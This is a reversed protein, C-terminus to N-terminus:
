EIPLAASMPMRSWGDWILITGTQENWGVSCGLLSVISKLPVLPYGAALKPATALSTMTGNMLAETSGISLFLRTEGRSIILYQGLGENEVQGKLAAILPEVPVLWEEGLPIPNLAFHVPNGNVTVKLQSGIISVPLGATKALATQIAEMDTIEALGHDGLWQRVDEPKVVRVEYPDPYYAMVITGAHADYGLAVREYSITVSTGKKVRDFLDRAQEPYMRICGHSAVRGISAPANTAHIGYGKISLGMWRDGLPNDPGPPVPEEETAWEPPFWTPNKAKVALTFEGTPTEWGPRGIAVPYYRVPKGPRFLYLGREPLNIVIGNEVTLPVIRQTPILLKEDGENLDGENANYIASVGIGFRRAIHAISERGKRQYTQPQGIVPPLKSLAQRLAEQTYAPRGPILFLAGGLLLTTIVRASVKV